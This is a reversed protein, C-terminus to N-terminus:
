SADIYAPMNDCHLCKFVFATPSHDRKLSALMQKAAGGSIGMQHVVYMMLTGELRPYTTRIEEAGAPTLFAAPEGCCSPWQEGQWTNFGPTRECITQMIEEAADDDFAESDVFAVDFKKHASGDAICWPCIADDLDDECYAPGTYVFGRAVKCCACKMESTVVSGSARPDPHHRFVPLDVSPGTM